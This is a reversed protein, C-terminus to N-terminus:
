NKFVELMFGKKHKFAERVAKKDRNINDKLLICNSIHKLKQLSILIEKVNNRKILPDFNHRYCEIEDYSIRYNTGTYYQINRIVQQHQATEYEAKKTVHSLSNDSIRYKVLVQPLHLIKYKRSIKWWLDFDESYQESYMGVDTVASRKFMVSPHYIWCIFNLNYYYYRSKFQDVRVLTEDSLIVQVATSLLAYEKNEKFFDYQVQLREPLSIDDADMRAILETEALQIGKNLTESIGLNRSNQYFKIRSDNFSRLIHVSSDTSCDDIIIFQFQTFTQNLISNIAQHLYKEANYVPMLVTVLPDNM